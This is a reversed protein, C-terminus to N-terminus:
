FLCILDKMDSNFGNDAYGRETRSIIIWTARTSARQPNGGADIIEIDCKAPKRNQAGIDVTVHPEASMTKIEVLASGKTEALQTLPPRSMILMVAALAVATAVAIVAAIKLPGAYKSGCSGLVEAAALRKWVGRTLKEWDFDALQQEVNRKLLDDIRNNQGTM